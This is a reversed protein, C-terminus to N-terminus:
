PLAFERNCQNCFMCDPEAGCVDCDDPGIVAACNPCIWKQEGDEDREASFLATKPKDILQGRFMPNESRIQEPNTSM